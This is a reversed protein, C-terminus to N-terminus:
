NKIDKEDDKAKQIRKFTKANRGFEGWGLKSGLTRSNSKSSVKIKKNKAM